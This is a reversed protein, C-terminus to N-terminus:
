NPKENAKLWKRQWEQQQILGDWQWDLIHPQLYELSTEVIFRAGSDSKAIGVERSHIFGHWFGDGPEFRTSALIADRADVCVSIREKEQRPPSVSYNWVDVYHGQWECLSFKHHEATRPPRWLKSYIRDGIAWLVIAIFLSPFAWKLVKRISVM